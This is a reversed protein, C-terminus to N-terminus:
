FITIVIFGSSIKQSEKINLIEKKFCDYFALYFCELGKKILFATLFDNIDRYPFWLFFM